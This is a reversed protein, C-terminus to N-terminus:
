ALGLKVLLRSLVVDSDLHEEALARAARAHRPYDANIADVSAAAEEATTFTLLGEGVPYVHELGTDRALVPRGSALYYASRDSLLGSNTAVYMQKPVMFEAKSQAIYARYEIPGGAVAKPDVVSWGHERLAHRDKVDAPHIELAMEFRSGPCRSPVDVFNRFEHVRQGYTRGKYEVPANAGRWAGLSTYAGDPAQPQLPWHELVVPYSTPIWELGCTPISCCPRGINQGLTVFADHGNFADHLGTERWMQGFGPDIDIFAKRRVRGLIEDDDLYGMVNLLCDASSARELAERRSLGITRTTGDCLLCFRDELGFQKLVRLFYRLNLSEALPAQAGSEDVCIAPDIRDIFLVDWGLRRLGLLFQLHLWTLGGNRPVQALAGSYLLSGSAGAGRQREFSTPTVNSTRPM